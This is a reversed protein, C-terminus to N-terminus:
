VAAHKPGPDASGADVPVLAPDPTTAEDLPTLSSIDFVGTSKAAAIPSLDATRIQVGFETALAKIVAVAILLVQDRTISGNVAFPILVTAVVGLIELGTKLAGSWRFRTLIPLVYTTASTVILVAFQLSVVVGFGSSSAAQLGGFVLTLFTFIAPAYKQFLPTNM